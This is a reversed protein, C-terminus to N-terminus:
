KIMIMRDIDLDEVFDEKSTNWDSNKVHIQAACGTWM